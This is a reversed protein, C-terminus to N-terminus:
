LFWVWDTQKSSIYVDGRKDPVEYFDPSPPHEPVHAPFTHISGKLKTERVLCHIPLQIRQLNLTTVMMTVMRRRRRRMMLFMQTLTTETIIDWISPNLPFSNPPKEQVFRSKPRGFPINEVKTWTSGGVSPLCLLHPSSETVRLLSTTTMETHTKMRRTTMIQNQHSIMKETTM